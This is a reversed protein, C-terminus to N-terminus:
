LWREEGSLYYSAWHAAQLRNTVEIKKFINYLHTKVTSISINFLDAIEQNSRGDAIRCLIEKERASLGKNSFGWQPMPRRSMLICKTLMKRRLWLEGQVIARMGKLFLSRSDERYFVGQVQFACVLGEVRCHPEVNFLVLILPNASSFDVRSLSTAIAEVDRTLCDQLYICPRKTTSERFAAEPLDAHWSSESQLATSLFTGLLQNQAMNPGVIYIRPLM